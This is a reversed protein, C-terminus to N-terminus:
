GNRGNNAAREYAGMDTLKGKIYMAAIVSGGTLGVGLGVTEDYDMYQAVYIGAIGCGGIILPPVIYLPWDGM